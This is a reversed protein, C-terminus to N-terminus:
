ASVDIVETDVLNAEQQLRWGISGVQPQKKNNSYKPTKIKFLGTWGKEISQEIIEMHQDKNKELLTIQKKITSPTLSKKIEKRHQVWQSWASVSLWEPLLVAEQRNTTKNITRNEKSEVDSHLPSVDSHITSVDSHITIERGNNRVTKSNDISIYGKKQLDSIANSVGQVSIGILESFHRNTAICGKDLMSLQHIEAFIFKQNPSLNKDHMIEISVMIFQTAM